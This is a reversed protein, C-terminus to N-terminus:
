RLRQFIELVCAPAEPVAYHFVQTPFCRGRISSPWPRVGTAWSASESVEAEPLQSAIPSGAPTHQRAAWQRAAQRRKTTQEAAQHRELEEIYRRALKLHKGITGARSFSKKSVDAYIWVSVLLHPSHASRGARGEVARADTERGSLDLGEVVRWIKRAPHQQDILREVDLPQLRM